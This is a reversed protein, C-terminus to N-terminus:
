RNIADCVFRSILFETKWRWHSSGFLPVRGSLHFLWALLKKKYNKDTPWKQLNMFLYACNLFM